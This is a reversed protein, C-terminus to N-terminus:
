WVVYDGPNVPITAVVIKDGPLLTYSGPLSIFKVVPVRANKREDIRPGM